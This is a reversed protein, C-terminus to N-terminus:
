AQRPPPTTGNDAPAADQVKPGAHVSAGDGNLTVARCWPSPLKVGLTDPTPVM